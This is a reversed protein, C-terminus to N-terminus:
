HFFTLLLCMCLWRAPVALFVGARQVTVAQHVFHDVLCCDGGVVSHVGVSPECPVGELGPVPAVFSGEVAPSVPFGCCQAFMDPFELILVLM